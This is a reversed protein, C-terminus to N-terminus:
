CITNPFSPLRMCFLLVPGRVGFVFIFDLHNFVQLYSRFSYSRSAFM